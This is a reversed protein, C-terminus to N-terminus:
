SAGSSNLAAPSHTGVHECEKGLCRESSDAAKAALLPSPLILAPPPDKILSKLVLLVDRGVARTEERSKHLMLLHCGHTM